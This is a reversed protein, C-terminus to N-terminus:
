GIYLMRQGQATLSGGWRGNPAVSVESQEATLMSQRWKCVELVAQAEALEITRGNLAGPTTHHHTINYTINIYVSYTDAGKVSPMTLFTTSFCFDNVVFM